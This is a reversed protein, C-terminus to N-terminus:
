PEVTALAKDLGSLILDRLFTQAFVHINHGAGPAVHLSVRPQEALWAREPEDVLSPFREPRREPYLPAEGVAVDAPPAGDILDFYVREEQGEETVGFVTEIFARAAPEDRWRTRLGGTMPWLKSMVLLPDLAIVRRVWPSRVGLAVLGGVSVGILVVARGQFTGDVLESVARAWAAISTEALAPTGNGPLRMVVADWAPGVVGPIKIMDDPEAWAGTIVLVIPKASTLAGAPSWLPIPGLGTQVVTVQM